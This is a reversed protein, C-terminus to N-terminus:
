RDSHKSVKDTTKQFLNPHPLFYIEGDQYLILCPILMSGMVREGEYFTGCIKLTRELELKVTQNDCFATNLPPSNM